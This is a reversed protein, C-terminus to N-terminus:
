RITWRARGRINQRLARFLKTCEFYSYLIMYAFFVIYM